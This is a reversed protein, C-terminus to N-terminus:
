KKLGYLDFEVRLDHMAKDSAEKMKQYNEGFLPVNPNTFSYPSKIAADTTKDGTKAAGGDSEAFRGLEDHNPNSM